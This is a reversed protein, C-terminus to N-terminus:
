ACRRRRRARASRRSRGASGRARGRAEGHAARAIRATGAAKVSAVVRSWQSIRAARGRSRPGPRRRRRWGSRRARAPPMREPPRECSRRGTPGRARAARGVALAVDVASRSRSACARMRARAATARWGGARARGLPRAQHRDVCAGCAAASLRRCSGRRRRARTRAGPSGRAAAHRVDGVLRADGVPEDVVVEGGLVLHEVRQEELAPVHQELEIRSTSAAPCRARAVLQVRDGDNM